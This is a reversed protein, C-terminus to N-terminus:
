HTQVDAVVSVNSTRVVAAAAISGNAAIARPQAALTLNGGPSAGTLQGARRRM